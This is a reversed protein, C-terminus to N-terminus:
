RILSGHIWGTKGNKARVRRWDNESDLLVLITGYTLQDIVDFSSGPGDRMNVKSASVIRTAGDYHINKKREALNLIRMSRKAYYVAAAYNHKKIMEDGTQLKVDVDAVTMSDLVAPTERQLKELLLQVEAVAAVASAKTEEAQISRELSLFQKEVYELDATMSQLEDKLCENLETRNECEAKLKALDLNNATVRAWLDKNQEKVETYDNLIQDLSDRQSPTLNWSRHPSATQTSMWRCGSLLLMFCLFLTQRAAGSFTKARYEMCSQLRAFHIGNGSSGNEAFPGTDM